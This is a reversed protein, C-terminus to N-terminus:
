GVTIPPAHPGFSPNIPDGGNVNHLDPAEVVTFVVCFQGKCEPEAPDAVGPEGAPRDPLEITGGFRGSLGKLFEARAAIEKETPLRPQQYEPDAYDGVTTPTTASSATTDDPTSAATTATSGSTSAPPVSSAPPPAIPDGIPKNDKDLYQTFVLKGQSNYRKHVAYVEKGDLTFWEVRDHGGIANPVSIVSEKFYHGTTPSFTFTTTLSGPGHRGEQDTVITLTVAGKANTGVSVGSIWGMPMGGVRPGLDVAVGTDKAAQGIIADLSPVGGGYKGLQDIMQKLVSGTPSSERLNSVLGVLVPIASEPMSLVDPTALDVIVFRDPFNTSQVMVRGDVIELLAAGPYSSADFPDTGELREYWDVWGDGDSDVSVSEATLLSRHADFKVDDFRPPDAASVVSALLPGAAIGALLFALRTRM